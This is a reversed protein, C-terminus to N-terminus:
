CPSFLGLVRPLAPLHRRSHSRNAAHLPSGVPQGWTWAGVKNEGMAKQMEEFTTFFEGIFDHKGRSDYDWVVCQPLPCSLGLHAAGPPPSWM